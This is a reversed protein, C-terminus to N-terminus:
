LSEGSVGGDLCPFLSISKWSPEHDTIIRLRSENIGIHDDVKRRGGCTGLYQGHASLEPDWADDSRRPKGVIM